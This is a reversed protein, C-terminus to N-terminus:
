EGKFGKYVETMTVFNGNGGVRLYEFFRRYVEAGQLQLRLESEDFLRRHIVTGFMFQFHNLPVFVGGERAMRAHESIMLNARPAIDDWTAHATYESALPIEVIGASHNFPRCAVDPDWPDSAPPAYRQMMYHWGCPSVALSSDYVIGVKALAEFMAPCVMLIPARFGLPDVGLARRFIDIARELKEQLAAVTHSAALREREQRDEMIRRVAPSRDLMFSPPFGFEFSAHEYGHLQLDHGEDQAKRLVEVWARDEYLPRGGSLPTVFLTLPVNWERFFSLYRAFLEVDGFGADDGSIAIQIPEM